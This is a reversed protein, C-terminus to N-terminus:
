ASDQPPTQLPASGNKPVSIPFQIQAFGGQAVKARVTVVDFKRASSSSFPALKRKKTRRLLTIALLLALVSYSLIVLGVVVMLENILM